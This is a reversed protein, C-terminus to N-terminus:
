TMMSNISIAKYITTFDMLMVHTLKFAQERGSDVDLLARFASLSTICVILCGKIKGTNFHTVETLLSPSTRTPTNRFYQLRPDSLSLNCLTALGLSSAQSFYLVHLTGANNSPGSGWLSKLSFPLILVSCLAFSLLCFPKDNGSTRCLHRWPSSPMRYKLCRLIRSMWKCTPFTMILLRSSLQMTSM